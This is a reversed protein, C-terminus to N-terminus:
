ANAEHLWLERGPGRMHICYPHTFGAQPSIRASMAEVGAQLLVNLNYCLINPNHTKRKYDCLVYHPM